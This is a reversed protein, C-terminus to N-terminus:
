DEATPLDFHFEPEQSLEKDLDAVAPIKPQPKAEMAAGPQGARPRDWYTKNHPDKAAAQAYFLYAQAMHGAKEADRGKEYLEWASPESDQALLRLGLVLGLLCRSWRM